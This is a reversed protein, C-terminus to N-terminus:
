KAWITTNLLLKRRKFISSYDSPLLLLSFVGVKAKMLVAVGFGELLGYGSVVRRAFIRAVEADCLFDKRWFLSRRLSPRM